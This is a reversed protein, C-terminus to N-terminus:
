HTAETRSNRKHIGKRPGYVNPRCVINTSPNKLIAPRTQVCQRFDLWFDLFGEPAWVQRDERERTGIGGGCAAVVPLRRRRGGIAEVVEVGVEPPPPALGQRV